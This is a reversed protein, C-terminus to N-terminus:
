SFILMKHQMELLRPIIRDIFKLKNSMNVLEQTETEPFERKYTFLYPHNCVLRLSMLINLLNAKSAGKTKQDLVKLKDYNRVL